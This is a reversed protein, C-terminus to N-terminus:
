VACIYDISRKGQRDWVSEDYYTTQVTKNLRDKWPSLKKVM